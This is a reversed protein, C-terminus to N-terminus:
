NMGKRESEKKIREAIQKTLTDMQRLMTNLGSIIYDPLKEKGTTISMLNSTAFEETLRQLWTYTPIEAPSFPEEGTETKTETTTTTTIETEANKLEEKAKKYIKLVEERRLLGDVERLKQEVLEDFEEHTLGGALEKWEEESMEETDHEVM